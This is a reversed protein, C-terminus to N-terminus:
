SREGRLVALLLSPDLIIGKTCINFGHTVRRAVAVGIQLFSRRSLYGTENRGLKRLVLKGRKFNEMWELLIEVTFIRPFNKVPGNSCIQCYGLTRSQFLQKM